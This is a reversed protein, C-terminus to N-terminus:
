AVPKPLKKLHQIVQKRVTLVSNALEKKGREPDGDGMACVIEPDVIAEGGAMVTPTLDEIDGGQAFGRAGSGGMRLAPSRLARQRIANQIGMPGIKQAITQGWMKAGASTNGQGLGSVVDAPLVYSGSHAQIPIRDTRGAVSSSILHVGPPNLAPKMNAGSYHAQTAYGRMSSPGLGGAAYYGPEQVFGGQGYSAMGWMSTPAQAQQPPNNDRRDSPSPMPPNQETPGRSYGVDGFMATLDSPNFISAQAGLLAPNQKM